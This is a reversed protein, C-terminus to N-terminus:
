KEWSPSECNGFNRTIRIQKGSYIDVAYIENKGTRDSQFVLHRNDIAWDPNDDDGYNEVIPYSEDEEINYVYIDFGKRTKKTYAIMDGKPSWSPSSNYSSNWTIRKLRRSYISAIFIQPTGYRNSVFAVKKGDPSIAPDGDVARHRTIRYYRGTSLDKIYIEPNGDKSATFALYKGDKSIDPNANLGPFKVLITNLKNSLNLMFIHPSMNRYSVYVFKKEGYIWKPSTSAFKEIFIRKPNKGSINTIAITKRGYKTTTFLIKKTFINPSGTLKETIEGAIKCILYDLANKNTKYAKGFIRKKDYTSFVEIKVTTTKYTTTIGGKILIEVGIRQWELFNIKGTKIDENYQENELKKDPFTFFGSFELYKKVTKTIKRSITKNGKLPLFAIKTKEGFKKSITLRIEANSATTACILFFLITTLIKLKTKM